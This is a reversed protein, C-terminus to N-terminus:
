WFQVCKLVSGKESQWDFTKRGDKDFNNECM